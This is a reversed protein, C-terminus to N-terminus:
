LARELMTMDTLLVGNEIIPDYNDTFFNKKTYSVKFGFQEYFSINDPSTGVEMRTCRSAYLKILHNVLYRAHGKRRHDPHTALNMLECLGDGKDLVVAVAVTMGNARLAYLEGDDLYRAIMAESPDADLLFPMYKDKYVTIKRVEMPALEGLAWHRRCLAVYAEDGGLMIQEGEKVVRGNLVRTNFTAKRGCWCVTKIEEITDAWAMLWTSGEFLNGQFDARLGYCIVPINRNDVIDVLKQVQEKTMFQCEDVIICDVGSLDLSDLDEVYHCPARLGSRSGVIGMGDRSDMRPKLMLANQGREQYNYQVMIANATKSSGMAGYRFYLKAM